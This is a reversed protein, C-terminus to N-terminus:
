DIPRQYNYTQVTLAGLFAIGGIISPIFGDYSGDEAFIVFGPILGFIALVLGGILVNDTTSLQDPSKMAAVIDCM